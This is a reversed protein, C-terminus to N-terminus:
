ERERWARGFMLSPTPSLKHCHEMGAALTDKKFYYDFTIDRNALAEVDPQRTAPDIYDQTFFFPGFKGDSLDESIRAFQPRPGGGGTSDIFVEVNSLRYTGLLPNNGAADLYTVSFYEQGISAGTVGECPDQCANLSLAIVFSFTLIWCFVNKM